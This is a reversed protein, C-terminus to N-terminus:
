GSTPRPKAKASVTARTKAPPSTKAPATVSPTRAPTPAATTVAPTPTAGAMPPVFFTPGPLPTAAAYAQESSVSPTAMPQGNADLQPGQDAPPRMGTLQPYENAVPAGAADSPLVRVLQQGQPTSKGLGQLPKGREDFLRVNTLLHGQADYPYINLPHHGDLTIGIYPKPSPAPAYYHPQFFTSSVSQADGYMSISFAVVLASAAAIVRRTWLPLAATRLGLVVSAVVAILVAVFGILWNGHYTPVLLDSSYPSLESGHLWVILAFLALWGRLVWWGPRLTPLFTRVERAWPQELTRGFAHWVPSTTVRREVRRLLPRRSTPAPDLGASARLEAAYATPSGLSAELSAGGSEALVEYLHAQLDEILDDFDQAPLDALAAQIAALYGAVEGNETVIDTM